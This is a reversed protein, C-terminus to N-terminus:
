DEGYAYKALKYSDNIQQKEPYYNFTLSIVSKAGDVLLRPDLRKDFHNEMYQMKGHFDNKLWKELRPAEEELFEAKSIGCSFFGLRLAETKISKSNSKIKLNM